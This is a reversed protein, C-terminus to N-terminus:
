SGDVAMGAARARAVVARAARVMPMDVMRGEFAFVGVGEEQRRAHERLLRLAAALEEAPPTFVGLIPTVQGPHIALKGAYGLALAARSDAVLGAENLIEVFPTDIAQLGAAACHLAVASRAYLIEQGATTRIGGLDAVLDEAGFAIAALRPSAGTIEPLAVVGRATEVIAILRVTGRRLRRATEIRDLARSIRLLDGAGQTKPIVITDPPQRARLVAELDRRGPGDDFPNIRVLRERRGFDLDELAAVAAARGEDKRGAAVADELDIIVGDADLGAAKEIKRRDTAPCFLLVRRPRRDM